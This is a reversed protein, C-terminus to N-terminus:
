FYDEIDKPKFDYEQSERWIDAGVIYNTFNILAEGDLKIDEENLNDVSKEIIKNILFRDAISLQEKPFLIELIKEDCLNRGQFFKIYELYNKM